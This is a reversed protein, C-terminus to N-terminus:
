NLARSPWMVPWQFASVRERAAARQRLVQEQALLSARLRGLEAELQQWNRALKEFAANLRELKGQTEAENRRMQAHLQFAEAVARAYPGADEELAIGKDEFLRRVQAIFEDERRVGSDAAAQDILERLSRTFDNVAAGRGKQCSHGYPIGM